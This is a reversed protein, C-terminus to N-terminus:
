IAKNSWIGVVGLLVLGLARFDNFKICRCQINNSASLPLTQFAGRLKPSFSAFALM